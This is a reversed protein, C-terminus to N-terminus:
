VQALHPLQQDVGTYFQDYRELRLGVVVKMLANISFEENVYAGFNSQIGQYANNAEYNGSYYTGADSNVDWIYADSLLEDADGTLEPLRSMSKTRLQYRLIEYDRYKFTYSAGYKLKADRERLTHKRTVDFRNALNFENLNRWIRSPFGTEGPAIAFTNEETRYSTSRIDKSQM